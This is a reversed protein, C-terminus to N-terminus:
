HSPRSVTNSTPLPEHVFHEKEIFQFSSEDTELDAVSASLFQASGLLYLAARRLWKSNCQRNFGLLSCAFHLRM